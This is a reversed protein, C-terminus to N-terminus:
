TRGEGGGGGGGRRGRGGLSLWVRRGVRSSCSARYPPKRFSSLGFLTGWYDSERIIFVGILYGSNRVGGCLALLKLLGFSQLGSPRPSM